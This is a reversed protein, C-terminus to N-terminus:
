LLITKMNLRTHIYAKLRRLDTRLKAPISYAVPIPDQTIHAVRGICPATCLLEGGRSSNVKFELISDHYLMVWMPVRLMPRMWFYDRTYPAYEIGVLQASPRPEVGRPNVFIISVIPCNHLKIDIVITIITSQISKLM